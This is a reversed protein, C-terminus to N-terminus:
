HSQRCRGHTVTIHGDAFFFCLFHTDITNAKICLIFNRVWDTSFPAGRSMLEHVKQTDGERACHLLMKGLDMVSVSMKPPDLM